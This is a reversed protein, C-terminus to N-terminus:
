KVNAGTFGRVSHYVFFVVIGVFIPPGLIGTTANRDIIFFSFLALPMSLFILAYAPTRLRGIGVLIMLMGVLAVAVSLLPSPLRPSPDFYASFVLASSGLFLVLGPIASFVFLLGITLASRRSQNTESVGDSRMGDSIESEFRLGIM